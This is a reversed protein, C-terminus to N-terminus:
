GAHSSKRPQPAHWLGPLYREWWPVPPLDTLPPVLFHYELRWRTGPPIKPTPQEETGELAAVVCQRFAAPVSATEEADVWEFETGEAVTETFLELRVQQGEPPRHTQVCRSLPGTAAMFVQQLAGRKSPNMSWDSELELPAASWAKAWDAPRAKPKPEFLGLAIVIGLGVVLLAAVTTLVRRVM